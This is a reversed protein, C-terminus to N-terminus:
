PQTVTIHCQRHSFSCVLIKVRVGCGVYSDSSTESSILFISRMWTMHQSAGSDLFWALTGICGLCCAMLSFEKSKEAFENVETSTAAEVDKKSRKKITCQRAYHGLKHCAFCKVKSM